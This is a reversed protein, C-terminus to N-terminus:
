PKLKLASSMVNHLLCWVWYKMGLNYATSLCTYMHPAHYLSFSLSACLFPLPVAPLSLLSSPGRDSPSPSLVSGFTPM